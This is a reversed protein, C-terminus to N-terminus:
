EYDNLNGRKRREKFAGPFRHPAREERQDQRHRDVEATSVELCGADAEPLSDAKEIVLSRIIEEVQAPTCGESRKAIYDRIAESLPIKSCLRSVLEGREKLSPKGLVVVRDFRSPRQNLARDLTELSNTTAVTVIEHQEEVGDLEALLSILASGHQYGFEEREQGILDIDELFVISPSLDAAIEYILEVYHREDMGYASSVICTIDSGAEAMLAKCIITKGTGPEGSLIVGRKQPVGYGSLRDSAKLFSVTNLRIDEKVDPPLIVSEWDRHGAEMIEIGPALKLNRGRYFNERTAIEHVSDLFKEIVERIESPGEAHINHGWDPDRNMTLVLRLEGKKAPLQGDVLVKAERLKEEPTM